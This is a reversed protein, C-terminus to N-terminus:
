RTSTPSLETPLDTLPLPRPPAGSPFGPTFPQANPNNPDTAFPSVGIPLAPRDPDSDPLLTVPSPQDHGEDNRLITPQRRVEGQPSNSGETDGNISAPPADIDGCGTGVLPVLLLSFLLAFRISSDAM